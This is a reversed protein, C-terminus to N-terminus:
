GSLYIAELGAKVMQVAQGGTLAGLAPVFPREDLLELLRLAGERALTHEIKVSGRLRVVDEADYDRRLGKWRESQWEARLDSAMRAVQETVTPMHSKAGNTKM